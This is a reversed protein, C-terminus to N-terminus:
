RGHQDGGEGFELIRIRVPATGTGVMDLKQAAGYSLDLIRNKVFPGRDNIRVEVEKGNDINTVRIRTNFPLTQHAATLAYMDFTEGNATTRGHYEQCYFSAIGILEAGGTRYRPTTSCGQLSLGAAALFFLVLCRIKM